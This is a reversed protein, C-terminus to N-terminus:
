GGRGSVNLQQQGVNVQGANRVLVRPAKRQDQLAKLTRLWLRHLREVMGVARELHEAESLRPTELNERGKAARESRDSALMTLTAVVEQWNWLLTQWQGMQDVLLQELASRPGVAETLEARVALFGARPWCGGGYGELARAARHGSRVEQRAAQKVEEWRALAKEPDEQAVSDLDFWNVQDPPGSLIRELCEAPPAEAARRRAEEPTLRYLERYSRAMRGFAEGVERALEGADSAVPPAQVPAPAPAASRAAVEAVRRRLRETNM